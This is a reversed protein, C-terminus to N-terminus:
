LQRTSDMVKARADLPVDAAVIQDRGSALGRAEDRAPGVRRAEPVDEALEAIANGRQVHVVSQAPILGVDVRAEAAVHEAGLDDVCRRRLGLSLQAVDAVRVRGFPEAGRPM